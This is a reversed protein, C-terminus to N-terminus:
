ELTIPNNVRTLRGKLLPRYEVKPFGLTQKPTCLLQRDGKRETSTQM